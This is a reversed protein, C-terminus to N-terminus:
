VGLQSMRYSNIHRENSEHAYYVTEHFDMWPFNSPGSRATESQERLSTCTVNIVLPLRTRMFDFQRPGRVYMCMCKIDIVPHKENSLQFCISGGRGGNSM